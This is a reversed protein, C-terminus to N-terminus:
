ILGNTAPTRGSLQGGRTPGVTRPRSHCTVPLCGPDGTVPTPRFAGAVCYSVPWEPSAVPSSRGAAACGSGGTTLTQKQAAQDGSSSILQKTEPLCIVTFYASAAAIENLRM